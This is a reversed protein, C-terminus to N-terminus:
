PAQRRRPGPDQTDLFHQRDAPGHELRGDSQVISESLSAPVRDDDRAQRPLQLSRSPRHRHPRQETVAVSSSLYGVARPRM